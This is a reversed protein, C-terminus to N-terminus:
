SAAFQSVPEVLCGNFLSKLEEDDISGPAGIAVIRTHPTREGWEDDLALDARRGVVQLIARREEAEAAYVVGKCRYINAPLKKKVMESLAELSMPRDTKYSWTSFAQRTHSSAAM